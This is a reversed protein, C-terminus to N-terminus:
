ASLKAPTASGGFSSGFNPLFAAIPASRPRKARSKAYFVLSPATARRTPNPLRSSTTRQAGSVAGGRVVAEAEHLVFLHDVERKPVVLAHGECLPNIDLFAFYRQDEALKHSPIEGAIIRTFISAM